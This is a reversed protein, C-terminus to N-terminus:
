FLLARSGYNRAREHENRQLETGGTIRGAWKLRNCTGAAADDNAKVSSRDDRRASLVPGELSTCTDWKSYCGLSSGAM